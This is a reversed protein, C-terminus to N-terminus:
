GCRTISGAGYELKDGVPLGKEAAIANGANGMCSEILDNERSAASCPTICYADRQRAMEAWQRILYDIEEFVSSARTRLIRCRKRALRAVDWELSSYRSRRACSGGDLQDANSRGIMQDHLRLWALPGWCDPSNAFFRRVESGRLSERPSLRVATATTGFM